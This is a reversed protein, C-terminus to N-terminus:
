NVYNPYGQSFREDFADCFSQTENVSLIGDKFLSNIVDGLVFNNVTLGSPVPVNGKEKYMQVLLNEAESYAMRITDRSIETGIRKVAGTIYNLNGFPPKPM